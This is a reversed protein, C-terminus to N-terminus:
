PPSSSVTGWAARAGSDGIRYTQLLTAAAAVVVLVGVVSQAILSVAM